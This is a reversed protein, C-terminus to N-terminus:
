KNNKKDLKKISKVDVEPTKMLDKDVDGTIELLEGEMVTVGNFDDEDIEIIIEGTKDAFVYKDDGVAKMIQGQMVVFTDDSKNKVNEVSEVVLSQPVFVFGGEKKKALAPTIVCLCMLALLVKKMLLVGM